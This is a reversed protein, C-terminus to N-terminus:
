KNERLTNCIKQITHRSRSHKIEIAEITLGAIRDAIIADKEAQTLNRGRRRHGSDRAAFLAPDTRYVAIRRAESIEDRLTVLRPQVNSVQVRIARDRTARGLRPRAEREESM